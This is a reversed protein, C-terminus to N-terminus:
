VVSKRDTVNIPTAEVKKGGGLEKELTKIKAETEKQQSKLDALETKKDPKSCSLLLFFFGGLGWLPFKTSLNKNNFLKM